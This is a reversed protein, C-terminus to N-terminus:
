AGGGGCENDRISILIEGRGVKGISVMKGKQYVGLRGGGQGGDYWMGCVFANNYVFGGCYCRM